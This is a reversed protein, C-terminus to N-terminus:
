FVLHTTLKKRFLLKLNSRVLIYTALLHPRLTTVMGATLLGPGLIKTPYNM